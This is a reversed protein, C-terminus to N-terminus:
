KNKIKITLLSIGSQYGFPPHFSDNYKGKDIYNPNYSFEEINNSELLKAIKNKIGEQKIKMQDNAPKNMSKAYDSKIFDGDCQAQWLTKSECYIKEVEKLTEIDKQKQEELWEKNAERWIPDNFEDLIKLTASVENKRKKRLKWLFDRIENYEFDDIKGAIWVDIIQATIKNITDM